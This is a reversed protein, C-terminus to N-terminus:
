GNPLKMYKLPIHNPVLIESKEAKQRRARIQSNTWDMRTFLVEFDIMKKARELGFPIVGSKNSVDNTFLVGDWFLVESDIPIFRSCTIRGAMRAAYEMPHNKLFCLHVYQDLGRNADAEHSWENGGPHVDSLGMERLKRFCFLGGKQRISDLNLLDTFHYVETVGFSQFPDDEAM